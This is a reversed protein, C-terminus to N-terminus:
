HSDEWIEQIWGALMFSVGIAAVLIFYVPTDQSFYPKGDYNAQIFCGVWVGVTLKLLTQLLTGLGNLLFTKKM